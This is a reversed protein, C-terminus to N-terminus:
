PHIVGVGPNAHAQAYAHGAPLIGAPVVAEQTGTAGSGRPPTHLHSTPVAAAVDAASAHEVIRLLRRLKEGAASRMVSMMPTTDLDFVVPRWSLFTAKPGHATQGDGLYLVHISSLLRMGATSSPHEAQVSEQCAYM